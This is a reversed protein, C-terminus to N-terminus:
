GTRVLCDCVEALRPEHTVVIVQLGSTVSHSRVATMLRCVSDIRDTDLFVTPEDLVLLGLNRSFLDYIAFRFAISLEVKQGGSLREAPTEVSGFSCVIGLNSDIRASYAVGFLDLYKALRSNISRLYRGAVVNPLRDRHFVDRLNECVGRWESYKERLASAKELDEIRKETELKNRRFAEIRGLLSNREDRTARDVDLAAKAKGYEELEVREGLAEDARSKRGRAQLLLSAYEVKRREAADRKGRLEILKTKLGEVLEVLEADAAKDEPSRQAAAVAFRMLGDLERSAEAIERRARETTAGWRSKADDANKRAAVLAALRRKDRDVAPGLEALIKAHRPVLEQPVLQDCTPCRGAGARFTSVIKGSSNVAAQMDPLKRELESLEAGDPFAAPEPVSAVLKAQDIRAQASSRAQLTRRAAEEERLNAAARDYDEASGSLCASVDDIRKASDDVEDSVAGYKSSLDSVASEADDAERKGRVYSDYRAIASRLGAVAEESLVKKEVGGLEREAESIRADQEALARKLEEVGRSEAGLLGNVRVLELQLAARVNEANTTGFLVQFARARDAPTQFLLGEMRGQPVFIMDQLIKFDLGLLDVMAESVDTARSFKSDGYEMHVKAGNVWRKVSGKKGGAEFELKVFGSSTGWTLDEDKRGPNSSSGTLAFLISKVYNSKGSGNPGVVGVLGGCLRDSRDGHQCFNELTVKEIRM